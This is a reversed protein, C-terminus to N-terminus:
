KIRKKLKMKDDIATHVEIVTDNKWNKQVEFLLEKKGKRGEPFYYVKQGVNLAVGSNSLPNLNPNMYSPIVLSISKLSGNHLTMSITQQAFASQFSFFIAAAIFFKKLHVIKM